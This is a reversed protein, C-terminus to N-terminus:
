EDMWGDMSGLWVVRSIISMTRMIVLARKRKQRGKARGGRKKQKPNRFVAVCM